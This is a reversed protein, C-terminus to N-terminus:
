AVLIELVLAMAQAELASKAVLAVTLAIVLVAMLALVQVLVVAVLAFSATPTTVPAAALTGGQTTTVAMALTARLTLPDLLGELAATRTLNLAVVPAL